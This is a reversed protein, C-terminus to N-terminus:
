FWSHQFQFVQYQSVQRNDKLAPKFKMKGVARIADEDYSKCGSKEVLEVQRVDSSQHLVARVVVLLRMRSRCDTGPAPINDLPRIVKAKVDVENASYVRDETTEAKERGEPAPSPSPRPNTTQAFIAFHGVFLVASVLALRWLFRSTM